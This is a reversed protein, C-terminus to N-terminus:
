PQERIMTLAERMLPAVPGFAHQGDKVIVRGGVVVTLVDSASATYLVEAAKSGATRTSELYVTIFSDRICM